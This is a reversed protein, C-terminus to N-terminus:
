YDDIKQTIWFATFAFAYCSLVKSNRTEMSDVELFEIMQIGPMHLTDQITKLNDNFWKQTFELSIPILVDGTSDDFANEFGELSM